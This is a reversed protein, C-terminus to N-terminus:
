VGRCHKTFSQSKPIGACLCLLFYGAELYIFGSDHFCSMMAASSLPLYVCSLLPLALYLCLPHCASPWVNGNQYTKLFGSMQTVLIRSQCFFVFQLLNEIEMNAARYASSLWVPLSPAPMLTLQTFVDSKRQPKNAMTQRLRRGTNIFCVDGFLIRDWRPLFRKSKKTGPIWVTQGNITIKGTHCVLDTNYVLGFNLYVTCRHM